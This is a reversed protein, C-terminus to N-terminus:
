VSMARDATDCIDSNTYHSFAMCSLNVIRMMCHLASMNFAM